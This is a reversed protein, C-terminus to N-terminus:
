CWKQGVKSKAPCVMLFTKNFIRKLQFQVWGSLHFPQLYTKKASRSAPIGGVHGTSLSSAPAHIDVGKRSGAGM